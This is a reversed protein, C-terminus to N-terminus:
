PLCRAEPQAFFVNQLERLDERARDVQAKTVAAEVGSEDLVQEAGSGRGAGAM